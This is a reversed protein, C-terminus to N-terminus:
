LKDLTFNLPRESGALDIKKTQSASQYGQATVTITCNGVELGTLLYQGKSDSFVREGSGVVRVQAMIVDKGDSGIIKGTITTPPLALDSVALTIKKENREVTVEQGEVTGYRSGAGPLTAKLTYAGDPLDMFHFHGDRTTLARDPRKLMDKWTTGYQLAYIDLRSMFDPPAKTIEVLAGGLSRLTQKDIVRGAIAVQHHVTTEQDSM